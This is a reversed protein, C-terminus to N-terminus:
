LYMDMSYQHFLHRCKLILKKYNERIMLRNSYYNISSVKKNTESGTVPNIMQMSFHYGDEDQWFLIPYQLADYLRYTEITRQLQNSRRHLVIDRNELNEGVVVIAVKDITPANFHRAHQGAPTKNSKMFNKFNESPIRDLATTFLAVLENYIHFFTQLQEAIRRKVSNNHACRQDVQRVSDSM